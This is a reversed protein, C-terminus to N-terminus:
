QEALKSERVNCYVCYRHEPKMCQDDEIQHGFFTCLAALVIKEMQDSAEDDSGDKALFDIIDDQVYFRLKEAWLPRKQDSM